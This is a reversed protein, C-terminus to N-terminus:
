AAVERPTSCLSDFLRLYANAQSEFSFLAQMRARGAQGLRERLHSDALLRGVEIALRDADGPPILVGTQGNAVVEPTGGVATAVVPVGAASAELAVNPLGETFSPLVMVDAGGILSDLDTRFGPLVVRETLGCRRLQEELSNRLSGEGFLAVGTDMYERCITACADVLITFGKEPSLRGAALIIKSVRDGSPFFARLRDRAAPDRKEFAGLRASNRIV